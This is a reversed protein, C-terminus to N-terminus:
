ELVFDMYVPNHDSFMFDNDIGEAKIVKINDSVIFGDIVTVFNTKDWPRSTDRVTPVPHDANFPAVLKLQASLKEKPFTKTWNEGNSKFGFRESIGEMVERNLDGGCIIYNGKKYEEMMDSNLVEVQRTSTDANATYASMHTNYLVLNKGNDAAIYTKSFCRDLDIFKSLGTEIPFSRRFSDFCKYETATMIGAKNAGHPQLPPWFLFASDYNQAFVTNFNQGTKEKLTDSIIKREDVHRSRTSDFDVEQFLMFDPNFKLVSDVSGSINKVVEEKSFAWSYKGGDMFFSFDQSYAGFGLNASVIRYQIGASVKEKSFTGETKLEMNDPLRKYSIFLYLVYIMATLLVLALASILIKFIVKSMFVGNRVTYLLFFINYVTAM